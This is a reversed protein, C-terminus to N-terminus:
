QKRTKGRSLFGIKVSKKNERTLSLQNESFEQKGEHPFALKQQNRTKGRSPFSNKATEKNMTDRRLTIKRTKREDYPYSAKNEANKMLRVEVFAEKKQKENITGWRQVSKGLFHHNVGMDSSNKMFVHLAVPRGCLSCGNRCM